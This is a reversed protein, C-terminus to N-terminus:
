LADDQESAPTGIEIFEEGPPISVPPDDPEAVRADPPVLDPPVTADTLEEGPLTAPAPASAPAPAPTQVAEPAAAPAAVPAEVPTEVPTHDTVAAVVAFTTRPPPTQKPATPTGTSASAQAAVLFAAGAALGAVPLILKRRLLETRLYSAEARSCGLLEVIRAEVDEAESGVAVALAALDTARLAIPEGPKSRRLRVLLQVYGTLIEDPSDPDVALADDGASLLQEGLQVPVRLPILGTLEEGYSEVLQVLVESPVPVAGREYDRLVGAGIGLYEAAHRRKWGRRKRAARLLQGLRKPPMTDDLLLAVTPSM